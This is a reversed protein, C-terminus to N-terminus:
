AGWGEEAWAPVFFSSKVLCPDRAKSSELISREEEMAGGNKKEWVVEEELLAGNGIRNRHVQGRKPPTISNAIRMVDKAGKADGLCGYIENEDWVSLDLRGLKYVSMKAGYGTM